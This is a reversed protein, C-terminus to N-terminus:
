PKSTKAGAKKAERLRQGRLVLDRFSDDASHEVKDRLIGHTRALTVLAPQPDGLEVEVGYRTPKLKRLAIKFEAPLESYPKLSGNDNLGDILCARGIASLRYLLEDASMQMRKWQEDQAKALAAAVHPRSFVKTGAGTDKASYGAAIVAQAKNGKLLFFHAIALRERYNLKKDAPEGMALGTRSWSQRAKATNRKWEGRFGQLTSEGFIGTVTEGDVTLRVPDDGNPFRVENSSIEGDLSVVVGCFDGFAHAKSGTTSITLEAGCHGVHPVRVRLLWEGDFAAGDAACLALLCSLAALM